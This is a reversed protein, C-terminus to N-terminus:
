RRHGHHHHQNHHHNTMMNVTEIAALTGLAGVAIASGTGM